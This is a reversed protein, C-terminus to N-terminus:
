NSFFVEFPDQFNVTAFSLTADIPVMWTNRWCTEPKKLGVWEGIDAYITSYILLFQWKESGVWGGRQQRLVQITGYYLDDVLLSSHYSEFHREPNM